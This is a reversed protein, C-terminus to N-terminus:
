YDRDEEQYSNMRRSGNNTRKRQCQCYQRPTLPQKQLRRRRTLRKLHRRRVLLGIVVGVLAILIVGGVCISILVWLEMKLVAAVWGRFGVNSSSRDDVATGPTYDISTQLKSGLYLNCKWATSNMQAMPLTLTTKSEGQQMQLDRAQGEADSWEMQFGSANGHLCCVVNGGSSEVSLVNLQFSKSMKARNIQVLCTYRGADVPSVKSLSISNNGKSSSLLPRKNPKNLELIEQEAPSEQTVRSWIARESQYQPETLSSSLECPFFVSGGNKVSLMGSSPDAQIGLVEVKQELKFSGVRCRWTGSHRMTLEEIELTSSSSWVEESGPQLWVPREGSSGSVLCDLKLSSSQLYPGPHEPVVSVVLLNYEKKIGSIECQYFGAFGTEVDQIQLASSSLIRSKSKMPTTGFLTNRGVNKVINTYASSVDKKYSWAVQTQPKVDCPLTVVSKKSVYINGYSAAQLFGLIFMKLWVRMVSKMENGM